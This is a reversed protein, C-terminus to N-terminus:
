RRYGDIEAAEDIGFIKEFDAVSRLRYIEAAVKDKDASKSLLFEEKKLSFYEKYRGESYYIDALEHVAERYQAVKDLARYLEKSKLLFDLASKKENLKLKVQYVAFYDDAIGISNEILRDLELAKYLFELSKEPSGKKSYLHATSYYISSLIKANSLMKSKYLKEFIATTQNFYGLAKDFNGRGTEVRAIYSYLIGINEGNGLGSEIKLADNYYKEALDGNEMLYYSEGMGALLLAEERKLFDGSRPERNVVSLGDSFATQAGDYDELLLKVKGIDYYNVATGPVDDSLKNFKLAENLYELAKDYNYRGIFDRAVEINEAAKNRLTYSEYVVKNSLTSCGTVLMIFAATFPLFFLNNM